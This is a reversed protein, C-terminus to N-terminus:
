PNSLRGMAYEPLCALTIGLHRSITRLKLSAREPCSENQVILEFNWWDRSVHIPLHNQKVALYM